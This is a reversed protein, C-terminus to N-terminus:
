RFTVVGDPSFLPDGAIIIEFSGRPREEQQVGSFRVNMFAYVAKAISDAVESDEPNFLILVNSSHPNLAGTMNGDLVYGAEKFIGRLEKAVKLRLSSGLDFTIKVRASVGSYSRLINGLESIIRKRVGLSLPKYTDRTALERVARVEEVLKALAADTDLAPYLQEAKQRIPDLLERYHLNERHLEANRSRLDRIKERLSKNEAELKRVPGYEFYLWVVAIGVVLVIVVVKYGFRLNAFWQGLKRLNEFDFFGM